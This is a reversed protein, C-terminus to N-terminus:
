QSYKKAIDSLIKAHEQVTKYDKEEIYKKASLYSSIGAGAFGLSFFDDINDPAIGATAIFRINNLPGLIDKMYKAGLYGAPFIKVFDAGAEHAAEIETATMAGPISILGLKKTQTIIEVNVNPSIIFQAGADYAAQLQKKSLTTGTGVKMQAFNKKILKVAETTKSICDPDAQNFTEEILRIGGQYLAEVLNLLDEGYVGRIISIIKHESIYDVLNNM